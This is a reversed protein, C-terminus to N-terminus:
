PEGGPVLVLTPLATAVVLLMALVSLALSAEALFRARTSAAAGDLSRWGILAGGAALVFAAASIALLLAIPGAHRPGPCVAYSVLLNGFWAAPGVLVGIWLWRDRQTM